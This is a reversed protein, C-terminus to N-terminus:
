LQFVTYFRRFIKISYLENCFICGQGSEFSDDDSASSDTKISFKINKNQSEVTKHRSAKLTWALIKKETKKKERWVGFELKYPSTNSDYNRHLLQFNNIM